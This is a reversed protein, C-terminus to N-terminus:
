GIRRPEQEAPTEARGEACVADLGGRDDKPPVICALAEPVLERDRLYRAIVPRRVVLDVTHVVM